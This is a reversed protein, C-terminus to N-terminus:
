QQFLNLCKETLTNEFRLRDQIKEQLTPTKKGLWRLDLKAGLDDANSRAHGALSRGIRSLSETDNRNCGILALICLSGLFRMM